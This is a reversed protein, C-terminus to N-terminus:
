PLSTVALGHIPHKEALKRSTVLVRPNLWALERKIAEALTSADAPAPERDEELWLVVLVKTTNGFLPRLFTRMEKEDLPARSCAWAMSAITDRVKCAVEKALEGSTLREKNEIRYGRFDKVEIFWPAGIYLGVFDVAKTGQFQCLGGQYAPHADWKVVKWDGDFAFRLRKEDHVSSV